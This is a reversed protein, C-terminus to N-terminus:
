VTTIRKHFVRWMFNVLSGTPISGYYKEDWPWGVCGSNPGEPAGECASVLEKALSRREDGTLRWVAIKNGALDWVDICMVDYSPNEEEYGIIKDGIMAYRMDRNNIMGIVASVNGNCLSNFTVEKFTFSNNM